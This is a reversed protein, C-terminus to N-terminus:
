ILKGSYKVLNQRRSIVSGTYSHTVSVHRIAFRVCHLFQYLRRHPLGAHLFPEGLDHRDDLGHGGRLPERQGAHHHALALRLVEVVFHQVRLQQQGDALVDRGHEPVAGAWNTRWGPRRRGTVPHIDRNVLYWSWRSTIRCRESYSM